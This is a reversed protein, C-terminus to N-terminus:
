LCLKECLGTGLGAAQIHAIGWICRDLGFVKGPFAPARYFNPHPHESAKKTWDPSIGEFSCSDKACVM